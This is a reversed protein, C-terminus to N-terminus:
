ALLDEECNEKQLFKVEFIFVLVNVEFDIKITLEKGIDLLFQFFFRYTSNRRGSVEFRIERM